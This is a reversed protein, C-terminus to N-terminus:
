PTDHAAIFAAMVANTPEPHTVPAMHGAEPIDATSLRPLVQRLLAAVGLASARSREGTMLLCPCPLPGWAALPTPEGFLAQWHGKVAPMGAQLNPRKAEPTAAYRGEGMWYDVFAQTAAELAGTELLQTTHRSIADIELAGESDPAAAMLLSFLVPEFLTLSALRDAHQLAARLAVAGGFSHGVLHFRPGAREFVEALADVEDQLCLPRQFHWPASKGCGRLDPALVRHSPSLQEMLLRWQSSSSASSHLLVVPTGAHGAERVFPTPTQMPLMKAPPPKV